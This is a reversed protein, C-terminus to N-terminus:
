LKSNAARLLDAVRAAVAEPEAEITGASVERLTVFGAAAVRGWPREMLAEAVQRIMDRGLERADLEPPPVRPRDSLHPGRRLAPAVLRGRAVM